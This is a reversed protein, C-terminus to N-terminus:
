RLRDGGSWTWPFCGDRSSSQNFTEAEPLPGTVGMVMGM